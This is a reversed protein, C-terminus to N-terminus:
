AHGAAPAPGPGPGPAAQAAHEQALATTIDHTPQFSGAQAMAWGARFVQHRFEGRLLEGPALEPFLASLLRIESSSIRRAIHHPRLQGPHTLGAAALLEALAHLTNRHFNAVRQAKDPVVLARQRLPDQTTVGTPCKGTHCAQAQICGIAFMFGRAANCWDAGMAMVRAMDFATIVKGSAGLKIRDRLNVGILTNHVLRLAERLPTGVHDVFEVPAAGTGGEAGDVVIFDPTIGTELMAKVIAFWEWPHGVCFKFGVPKGGSLERLRAVFKMLGIPSDFASHTAPSNCDQWPAVGRAEAIEPTVKGAPLIGGHGPKAGQSLKIEIMKVQPTCANKVFAEESFAGHEDRCGFYGSGINWVLGGGPQRHYRSIGGEGTDHAFNGQRAGENLALVANASLAGFSMASVNFASMSYPQKCEPGGVTVRFDTDDIRSPSMSHNIWEYRDGYVDEQTGFPRKDIERKARQYVISRQARSFPAAQTDDELFYQRIEPRIFEFLFRLNGLVPYNRRIAHRPQILDYVGLAGLLALPVAIWLWWPSSAYALGATIAAGALTLLFATYRGFIWSM